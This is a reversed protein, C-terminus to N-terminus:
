KAQEMAAIFADPTLEGGFLKQLNTNLAEGVAPTLAQDWSQTFTPARVALRYTFRAFDANDGVLKNEVGKVAPVQGSAILDNIYTESALTEVM